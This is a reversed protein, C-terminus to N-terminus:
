IYSQDIEFFFDLEFRDTDTKQAKVIKEHSNNCQM